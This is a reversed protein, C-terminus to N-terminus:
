TTRVSLGSWNKMMVHAATHRQTGYCSVHCTVPVHRLEVVLEGAQVGAVVRHRTLAPAPAPGPQPRPLEGAALLLHPAAPGPGGVVLVLVGPPSWAAHTLMTILLEEGDLVTLRM